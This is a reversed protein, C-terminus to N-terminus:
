RKNLRPVASSLWRMWITRCVRPEIKVNGVEVEIRQMARRQHAVEQAFQMDRDDIAQHHLQEEVLLNEGVIEDAEIAADEQAGSGQFNEDVSPIVM